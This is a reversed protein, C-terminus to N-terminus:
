AGAAQVAVLVLALVAVACWLLRRVERHVDFGTFANPDLALLPPSVVESAPAMVGRRPPGGGPPAMVGPRM